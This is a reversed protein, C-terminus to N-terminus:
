LKKKEDASIQEKGKQKRRGSVKTGAELAHIRDRLAAAEEYDELELARQLKDKLESVEAPVEEKKAVTKRGETKKRGTKRGAAAPKKPAEKETETDMGDDAETLLMGATPLGDNIEIFKAHSPEKGTHQLGGQMAKFNKTILNSFASYCVPCGLRGMKLFESETTGCEPCKTEIRPSERDTGDETGNNKAYQSLIGSLISGIPLQGGMIENLPIATHESACDECLHQEKRQGNVIETYFIKAPKAQCIDCLM